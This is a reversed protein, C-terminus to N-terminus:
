ATRARRMTRESMRAGTSRTYEVALMKDTKGAPIGTAYTTAIYESAAAVMTQKRRAPRMAEPANAGSTPGPVALAVKEGNGSTDAPEPGATALWREIEARNISVLDYGGIRSRVWNIKGGWASPPVNERKSLAPHAFYRAPDRLLAASLHLQGTATIEGTLAAKILEEAVRSKDKGTADVVFLVAELLSLWPSVPLPM